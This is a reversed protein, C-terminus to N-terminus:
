YMLCIPAGVCLCLSFVCVFPHLKLLILLGLMLAPSNTTDMTVWGEATSHSVAPTGRDEGGESQEDKIEETRM